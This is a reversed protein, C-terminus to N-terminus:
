LAVVVEVVDGDLRTEEITGLRRLLAFAPENGLAVTARLRRFGARRARLGLERALRRGVGRGQCADVVEFAVEAVSRDSTDRVFRAIAVPRGTGPDTAVIAEHRGRQVDTLTELERASLRPKPGLFRRRRSREGLGRFVTLVPAREHRQLPRLIPTATTHVLVNYARRPPSRM